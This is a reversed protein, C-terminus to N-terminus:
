ISHLGQKRIWEAVRHRKIPANLANVSLTIISLCKHMAMKEKQLQTGRERVRKRRRRLTTGKAHRAISTQHLYM